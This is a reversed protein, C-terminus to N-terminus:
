TMHVHVKNKKNYRPGKFNQPHFEKPPFTYYGIIKLTPGVTKILLNILL